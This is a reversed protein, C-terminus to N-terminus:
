EAELERIKAKNNNYANVLVEFIERHKMAKFHIYEKWSPNDVPINKLSSLKVKGKGHVIMEREMIEKKFDDLEQQITELTTKNTGEIYTCMVMRLTDVSNIVLERVDEIYKENGTAGAKIMVQGGNMERSLVDICKQMQRLIIVEYSDKENSFGTDADLFIENNYNQEAM